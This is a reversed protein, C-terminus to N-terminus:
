NGRSLAGGPDFGTFTGGVVVINPEASHSIKLAEICIKLKGCRMCGQDFELAFAHGGCDVYWNSPM